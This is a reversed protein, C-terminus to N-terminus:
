MRNNTKSLQHQKSIIKRITLSGTYKYYLYEFLIGRGFGLASEPKLPMKHHKWYKNTDLKRTTTNVNYTHPERRGLTQHKSILSTFLAASSREKVRRIVSAYKLYNLAQADTENLSNGGDINYFIRSITPRSSIDTLKLGNTTLKM